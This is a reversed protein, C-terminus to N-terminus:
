HAVLLREVAQLLDIAAFPKSVYEGARVEEAWRGAHVAATMVLLPLQRGRARLALALGWGDLVPMRMDMLIVRPATWELLALAEAGNTATYVLYGELDLVDSVMSLINPDDDVVLVPPGLRVISIRPSRTMLTDPVEDLRMQPAARQQMM